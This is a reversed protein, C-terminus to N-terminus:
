DTLKYKIVTSGNGKHISEIVTIEESQDLAAIWEMTDENLLRKKRLRDILVGRSVSVDNSRRIIMKLFKMLTGCPTSVDCMPEVLNASLETRNTFESKKFENGWTVLLGLSLMASRALEYDADVFYENGNREHTKACFSILRAELAPADAVPETIFFVSHQITHRKAETIHRKIRAEPNASIGVKLIGNKFLIAYLNKTSIVPESM